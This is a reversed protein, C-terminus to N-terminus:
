FRIVLEAGGEPHNRLTHDFGHRTLVEHALTLGLGRGDRKTSFFPTFLREAAEPSLGPESDRLILTATGTGETDLTLRLEIRGEEGIAEVANKLV